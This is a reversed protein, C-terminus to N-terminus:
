ACCGRGVSSNSICCDDFRDIKLLWLAGTVTSTKVGHGFGGSGFYSLSVPHPIMSCDDKANMGATQRARRLRHYAKM